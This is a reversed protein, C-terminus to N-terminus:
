ARMGWPLGTVSRSPPLSVLCVARKEEYSKADALLADMQSRAAATIEIMETGMTTLGGNDAM